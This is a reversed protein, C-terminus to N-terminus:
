SKKKEMMSQHLCTADCLEVFRQNQSLKYKLDCHKSNSNKESFEKSSKQAQLGYM